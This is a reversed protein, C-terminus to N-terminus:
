LLFRGGNAALCFAFPLFWFAFIFHWAEDSHQRALSFAFGTIRGGSKGKPKQRKGKAKV